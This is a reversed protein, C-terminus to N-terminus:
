QLQMDGNTDSGVLKAFEVYLSARAKWRKGDNILTVIILLEEKCDPTNESNRTVYFKFLNSFCNNADRIRAFSIRSYFAAMSIELIVGVKNLIITSM